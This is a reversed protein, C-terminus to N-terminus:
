AKLRRVNESEQQQHKDVTKNMIVAACIAELAIWLAYRHM